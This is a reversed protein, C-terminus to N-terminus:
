RARRRLVLAALVLLLAVAGAALNGLRSFL